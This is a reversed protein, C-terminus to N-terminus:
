LLDNGTEEGPEREKLWGLIWSLILHLEANIVNRQHRKAVKQMTFM